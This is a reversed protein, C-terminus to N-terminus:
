LMIETRKIVNEQLEPSLTTFYASYGGVRVILNEHREPHKQADLLEELSLANVTLQQGKAAFYTKALSILAKRGETTQLIQKPLKIQLVYGSRAMTQDASLVASLLATPGERDCGPVAGVSDALLASDKRKGNPLAGIAAGYTAVRNFPSCGGGYSDGRYTRKTMLYCFFHEVVKKYMADAEPTHNGFKEDGSFDALLQEEDAFDSQLAHLLRNMSYKKQEFVLHKVALLSDVTDAIGEALFQGYNYLPGGDTYDRGKEICGETLCSRIPNPGNEAHIKQSRNAMDTMWDTIYEVQGTYAAFLEDFTQFNAANGTKAGLTAGTKQCVGDFLALEMCKALSVEGDELGMHSKGFIDIQNCGNMCYGHADEKPIGWKVLAPVVCADNYFAPMGIGTALTEAASEWLAEPTNPHVRMTLNPTNFRYKRAVQLIDYSLQNTQDRGDADSGSICLNWTRDEHFLEWLKELCFVRDAEEHPLYYEAMFQDLRGPSDPHDFSFILWFMQCAEFFDRPPRAPINEFAGAIRLLKQREAGEATQAMEKALAGYRSGLVDMADMSLSLADYFEEKGPNKKRYHEIKSRLGDTGLRLWLGFDPNAHGLWEGGWGVKQYVANELDSKDAHIKGRTDWPRMKAYLASLAKKLEPHAQMQAEAVPEELWVGEGFTYRVAMTQEPFQGAYYRHKPISLPIHKAWSYLGCAIKLEASEADSELFGAAFPEAELVTMM